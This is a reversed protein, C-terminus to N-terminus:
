FFFTISQYDNSITNFTGDFIDFQCTPANLSAKFRLNETM